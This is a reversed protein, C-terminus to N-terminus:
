DPCRGWSSGGHTLLTGEGAPACGPLPSRGLRKRSDQEHQMRMMLIALGMGYPRYLFEDVVDCMLTLMRRSGALPFVPVHCSNCNCIM